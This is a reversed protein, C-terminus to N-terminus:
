AGNRQRNGPKSIAGTTGSLLINKMLFLFARVPGSKKEPLSAFRIKKM